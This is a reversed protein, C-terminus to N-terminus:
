CSHFEVSEGDSLEVSTVNGSFPVGDRSWSRSLPPLHVQTRVPRGATLRIRLELEADATLVTAIRGGDLEAM